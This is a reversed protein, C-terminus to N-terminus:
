CHIFHCSYSAYRALLCTSELLGFDAENEEESSYAIIGPFGACMHPVFSYSIISSFGACTDPVFSTRIVLSRLPLPVTRGMSTHLTCRALSIKM